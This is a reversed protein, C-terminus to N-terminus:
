TVVPIGVIGHKRGASTCLHRVWAEQRSREKKNDGFLRVHATSWDGGTTLLLPARTVVRVIEPEHSLGYPVMAFDGLSRTIPLKEYHEEHLPTEVCALAEHDLVPKEQLPHQVFLTSSDAFEEPSEHVKGRVHGDDLLAMVDGGRELTARVDDRDLHKKPWTYLRQTHGDPYDYIFSTSPFLSSPSTAARIREFEDRNLPTHAATLVRPGGKVTSELLVAPLDGVHGVLWAGDRWVALTCTLGGHIAHWGSFWERRYLIRGQADTCTQCGSLIHHSLAHNHVTALALAFCQRMMKTADQQRLSQLTKPKRLHEELTSRARGALEPIGRSELGCLVLVSPDAPHRWGWFSREREM